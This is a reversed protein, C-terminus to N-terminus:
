GGERPFAFGSDELGFSLAEAAAFHATDEDPPVLGARHLHTSSRSRDRSRARLTSRALARLRAGRPTIKSISDLERHGGRAERRGLSSIAVGDRAPWACQPTTGRM